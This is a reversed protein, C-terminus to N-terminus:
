GGAGAVACAGDLLLDGDPGLGTLAAFGPGDRFQMGAVIVTYDGMRSRVEPKLRALLAVPNTADLDAGTIRVGEYTAGGARVPVLADTTLHDAAARLSEVVDARLCSIHIHFQDQGRTRATNVALAIETRPVEHGVFGNVLDRAHWAAAFYNPADPDLLEGSDLGPMTRTPVLLYHGAGMRDSVLAYGSGAEDSDLVVVRVCPAPSHHQTWNVLCRDQVLHRLADRETGIEPTDTSSGRYHNSPQASVSSAGVVIAAALTITPIYHKL